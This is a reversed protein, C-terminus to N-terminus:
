IYYLLVLLLVYYLVQDGGPEECEVGSCREGWVEVEVQSGGLGPLELNLEEVGPYSLTLHSGTLLPTILVMHPYRRATVMKGRRDVVM